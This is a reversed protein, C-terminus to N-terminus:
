MPLGKGQPSTPRVFRRTSRGPARLRTSRARLQPPRADPRQRAGERGRGQSAGVRLVTRAAAIAATAAPLVATDWAWREFAEERDFQSAYAAFEALRPDDLEARRRKVIGDAGTEVIEYSLQPRMPGECISCWGTDGDNLNVGTSAPRM